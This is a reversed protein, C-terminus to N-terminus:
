IQRWPIERLQFERFSGIFRMWIHTLPSTTLSSAHIKVRLHCLAAAAAAVVALVAAAVVVVAGVATM